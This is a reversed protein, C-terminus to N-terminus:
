RGTSGCRYSIRDFQALCQPPDAGLVLESHKFQAATSSNTALLIVDIRTSYVPWFIGGGEILIAAPDSWDGSLSPRCSAFGNMNAAGQDPDRRPAVIICLAHDLLTRTSETAAERFTRLALASKTVREEAPSGIDARLPSEAGSLLTLALIATITLVYGRNGSYRHAGPGDAIDGPVRSCGSLGSRQPSTWPSIPDSGTFSDLRNANHDVDRGFM